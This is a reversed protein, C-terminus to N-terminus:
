AKASRERRVRDIASWARYAASFADKCMGYPSGFNFPWRRRESENGDVDEFFIHVSALWCELAHMAAPLTADTLSSVKGEAELGAQEWVANGLAYMIVMKDLASTSEKYAQQFLSIASHYDGQQQLTYARNYLPSM